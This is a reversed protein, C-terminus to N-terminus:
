VRSRKNLGQAEEPRGRSGSKGAYAQNWPQEVASGFLTFVILELLLVGSTTWFIIQWQNLSQQLFFM